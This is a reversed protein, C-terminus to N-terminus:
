LIPYSLYLYRQVYQLQKGNTQQTNSYDTVNLCISGIVTKVAEIHQQTLSRSRSWIWSDVEECISQNRVRCGYTIAYNNYDTGIIWYDSSENVRGAVYRVYTLKGPESTPRLVAFDDFCTASKTPNRGRIHISINGDKQLSYNHQFDLYSENQFLYSPPIWMMEYWRGLFKAIEFDAQVEINCGDASIITACSCMIIFALLLKFAPVKKEM